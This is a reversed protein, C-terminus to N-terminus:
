RLRRLAKNVKVYDFANPDFKGGVWEMMSEHEEHDPDSLAVLLDYYGPVGGCDEPPCARAGATCVVQDPGEFEGLLTIEHEWGDGMDYVYRFSKKASFVKELDWIGKFEKYPKQGTTFEHLHSNTWGMSKQLMGHFKLLSTQRPVRLVRWVPPDIGQLVVKIEYLM